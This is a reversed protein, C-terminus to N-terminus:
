QNDLLKAAEILKEYWENGYKRILPEKLFVYLPIKLKSGCNCAPECIEIKEYNIADFDDYEKIRIPFLNCSLPKKFNIKGDLYA